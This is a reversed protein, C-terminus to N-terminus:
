DLDRACRFGLDAFHSDAAFFARSASRLAWATEYWSGGRAARSSGTIRPGTPDVVASSDYRRYGDNCWEYINGHMDYLGWPNSRYEGVKTPREIKADYYNTYNNSIMEGWSYATKTGARCAYEWEAETPLRYQQRTAESLWTLYAQSDQWTVNIVPFRGRGWGRDIPKRYGTMTCFYDFEDFIVPYRGIAFRRSLTVAHSPGDRAAGAEDGTSPGMLFGGAPLAVMEPCWYEDRDRFNTFNEPDTVLANEGRLKSQSKVQLIQELLDEAMARASESLEAKSLWSRALAGSIDCLSVVCNRACTIELLRDNTLQAVELTVFPYSYSAGRVSNSEMKKIFESTQAFIVNSSATEFARIIPDGITMPRQASKLDDPTLLNSPRLDPDEIFALIKIDDGIVQYLLLDKGNEDTARFVPLLVGPGQRVLRRFGLLTGTKTLTQRLSHRPNFAAM